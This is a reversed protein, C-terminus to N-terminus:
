PGVFPTEPLTGAQAMMHLISPMLIEARQADPTQAGGSVDIGVVAAIAAAVTIAILKHM